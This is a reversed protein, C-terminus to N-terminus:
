IKNEKARYQAMYCNDCLGHGNHQVKISRCQICCPHNKSWGSIERKFRGDELDDRHVNIHCSRCITTLNDESNNPNNSGRGNGDKHHVIDGYSSCYQCTHNDRELIFGRMGDFHELDRITSQIPKVVKQYHKHKQQKIKDINKSSNHHEKLYCYTCKGKAMHRKEVTECIICKEFHKSWKKSM